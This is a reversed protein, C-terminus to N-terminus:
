AAQWRLSMCSLGADIKGVEAVPLMRTSLGRNELMERTQPFGESVLVTDRIRLLNAAAAEEAPIIVRELDGFIGADDLEAIVAVTQEDIMGCGTKFHLVGPPTTVIRGKRGLQGLAKILALGGAEDTRESLGILVEAPTVLVDGGEVHGEELRLVRDFRQELEPEIQAVEGARTPAGPNLLIAGEGFVLAPDEVFVSDPYDDLSALVDITLGLEALTAAYVAHERLVDDYAPGAHDGDRLGNTVSRAPARLLAHTFDFASM